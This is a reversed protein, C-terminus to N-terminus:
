TAGGVESAKPSNFLDWIGKKVAVQCFRNEKQVGILRQPYALTRFAATFFCARFIFYHDEELFREPGASGPPLFM